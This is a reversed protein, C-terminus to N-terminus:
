ALIVHMRCRACDFDLRFQRGKTDVLFFSSDTPNHKLCRNVERLLCYRCTMVVDGATPKRAELGREPSLLGHKRYFAEAMSNTINLDEYPASNIQFDIQGPDSTAQNLTVRNLRGDGSQPTDAMLTDKRDYAVTNQTCTHISLTESRKEALADLIERRLQNIASVPVFQLPSKGDWVVEIADVKFPSDGTKGLQKQFTQLLKEPQSAPNGSVSLLKVASVRDEDCAHLRYGSEIPTLTLHISLKRVPHASELARLFHHDRNRFIETGPAIDTLRESLIKQQKLGNISTGTLQGDSTFFAIGDGPSLNVPDINPPYELWFGESDVRSVRGIPEGKWKPTQWSTIAGPTGTIFYDCYGRNFTKNPDPIFDCQVTGSSSRTNGRKDLLQDLQRRYHLVTNKLYLDDKLRGEIKFSRIGADLLAELHDTLNLDKLSLLHAEPHLTEGTENKLTFRTRCPQACDGRNGSRNGYARSLFCQGSYSVCLAGHIFAELAVSTNQCLPTIEPLSLERALIVRQFSVSELFRIREVTTNHTQTSAFLPVPPLNMQLYAMDQIILADIGIDCLSHALKQAAELEHEYLLTNLTAYVKVHYFHAYQILAEIEQLTNRAENRAGFASAGIYLADAGCNVALIGAERNKAPALLEISHLPSM